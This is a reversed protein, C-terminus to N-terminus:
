GHDEAAAPIKGNYEFHQEVPLASLFGYVVVVGIFAANNYKFFISAIDCFRGHKPVPAKTNFDSTM